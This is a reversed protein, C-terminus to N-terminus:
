IAGLQVVISMNFPNGNVKLFGVIDLILQGNKIDAINM